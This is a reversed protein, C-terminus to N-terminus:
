NIICDDPLNFVSFDRNTKRIFSISKKKDKLNDHVFFATAYSDAITANKAIVSVSKEAMTPYGTNGNILHGYKKGNLTYSNYLNSSTAIAYQNLKCSLVKKSDSIQIKWPEGFKKGKILIDGGANILFDNVGLSKLKNAAQDIAYGKALAYLNIKKSKLAKAIQAETPVKTIQKTYDNFKWLSLVEELFPSFAGNTEDKIKLALNFLRAVEKNKLDPTEKFVSEVRKFEEFAFDFAEENFKKEAITIEITTGMASFSQKTVKHSKQSQVIFGFTCAIIVIILKFKNVTM